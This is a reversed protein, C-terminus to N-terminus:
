KTMVHYTETRARYVSAASASSSIGWKTDADIKETALLSGGLVNWWLTFISATLM